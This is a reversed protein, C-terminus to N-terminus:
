FSLKLAFQIVRPLGVISFVKGFNRSDSFSTNPAALNVHNFLNFFEARFDLNTSETLRTRKSIGMDVNQLGDQRLVNRGLNGYTFPIVTVADTNFWRDSTQKFGSPLLDGILTPRQPGGGVNANDYGVLLSFPFGSNSTVIGNVQWGGLLYRSIKGANGLFRKGEGIPLDYVISTVFNHTLDFDSPGRSARFDFSDQVGNWPQSSGHVTSAIDLSKSYTYSMLLALGHSTRRELKLQGANYSTNSWQGNLTMPGFRPLRQRPALDGPGPKNATNVSYQIPIHTGKSGLYTASVLWNSGFTKDIGLNWIQVYPTRNSRNVAFGPFQPPETPFSFPPFIGSGLLRTPRPNDATPLNIAPEFRPAGFPWSGITDQQIQINSQNFDYFIGYGSRVVWDDKLRYAVAARPAWNNRDPFFVGEPATPPEGTVPNRVTTLWITRDPTSGLWDLGGLRGQEEKFPSSYDYRLGFTLTLKPTARWEDNVYAGYYNSRAAFEYSGAFQYANSPIGLLFSALGSGTSAPNQPDSTPLGDFGAGGYNYNEYFFTRILSAGATLTHKGLIKTFSGNHEWNNIPSIPGHVQEGFGFNDSTFMAPMFPEIGQPPPFDRPSLGYQNLFDISAARPNGVFLSTRLFQTRFDMVATPSLSRNLGIVAQQMRNTRLDPRVPILTPSVLSANSYTYRGFFTTEGPLKADMRIGFQDSDTSLSQTNIFNAGSQPDSYNPTPLMLQAVALATPNLLQRPIQNGPFPDRQLIPNGDADTGVVRTTFPNYIPPFASLDGNLQAPTPVTGIISSGLRKRFGEWWGFGWVQDKKVPGGATFGYQNQNFPSPKPDPNFPHRTNLKTNRLFEWMTGHYENTGSRTILNVNAGGARGYAGSSMNSEVRFEQVADPPPNIAPFNFYLENNEVGDLTFNNMESRTGNVAPSVAGVNTSVHYSNQLGTNQPASGPTLLILQTIQRGNLPLQSIKERDVVTGVTANTSNLLPAQDTVTVQDVVEGLQLTFNLTAHQSVQLTVGKNILTRFGQSTVAFDYVGPPLNPFQYTGTDDTTAERSIGKTAETLKVSAQAIVAGSQDTVAGRFSGNTIQAQLRSGLALGALVVLLCPYLLNWKRM